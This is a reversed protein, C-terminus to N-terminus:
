RVSQQVRRQLENYVRQGSEALVLRRARIEVLGMTFLKSMVIHEFDGCSGRDGLELIMACQLASLGNATQQPM